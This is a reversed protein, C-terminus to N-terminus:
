AAARRGRGPMEGFVRAVMVASIKGAAVCALERRLRRMAEGYSMFPTGAARAAARRRRFESNFFQLDGTAQAATLVASIRAVAAQAVSRSKKAAGPLL